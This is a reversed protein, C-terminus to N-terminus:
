SHTTISAFKGDATSLACVFGDIDVGLPDVCKETCRDVVGKALDLCKQSYQGWTTSGVLNQTEQVLSLYSLRTSSAKVSIAPM